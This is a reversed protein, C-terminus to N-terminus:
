FRGLVVWAALLFNGPEDLINGLRQSVRMLLANIMTIQFRAIDQNVLLTTGIDRVKAQSEVLTLLDMQRHLAAASRM